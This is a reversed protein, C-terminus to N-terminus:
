KATDNLDGIEYITVTVVYLQGQGLTTQRNHLTVIKM